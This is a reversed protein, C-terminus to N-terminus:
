VVCHPYAERKLHERLIKENEDGLRPIKSLYDSGRVFDYKAALDMKLQQLTMTECQPAIPFLGDWIKREVQGPRFEGLVRSKLFDVLLLRLSEEQHDSSIKHFVLTEAESTSGGKFALPEPAKPNSPMDELNMFDTVLDEAVSLCPAFRRIKPLLSLALWLLYGPTTTFALLRKSHAGPAPIGSQLNCIKRNTYWCISLLMEQHMDIGNKLFMSIMRIRSPLLRPELYNYLDLILVNAPSDLYSHSDISGELMELTLELGCLGKVNLSAGNNVLFQLSSEFDFVWDEVLRYGNDRWLVTQNVSTFLKCICLVLYGLYQPTLKSDLLRLYTPMLGFSFSCCLVTIFDPSSQSFRGPVTCEPYFPFFDEDRSRADMYVLGALSTLSRGLDNSFSYTRHYTGYGSVMNLFETINLCSRNRDHEAVFGWLKARAVDVHCFLAQREQCTSTDYALIKSGEQTTLLYELASRHIFRIELKHYRIQSAFKCERRPVCELDVEHCELLGACRTGLNMIVNDCKEVITAPDIDNGDVVSQLFRRDTALMMDAVTIVGRPYRAYPWPHTRVTDVLGFYTAATSIYDSLDADQGSRAWMDNFLDHLEKPTQKLRENLIAISDNNTLGRQLRRLVLCVWLFVGNSRECIIQVFQRHEWNNMNERGPLIKSKFFDMTYTRIDSETLTHIRLKHVKELRLQFIPEPRSSLCMKLQPISQLGLIFSWLDEHIESPILEDLGDIFICTPRKSSKLVVKIAKRLESDAWDGPNDKSLVLPLRQALFSLLVGKDKLDEELIQHLLSCYIGKTNRQLPYGSSLLFHSIIRTGPRWKELLAQTRSDRLLFLMLTSKGSGPKGSVWYVSDDSQLWSVFSNWPLSTDDQSTDSLIGDNFTDGNGNHSVSEPESTNSYAVSHDSACDSELDSFDDDESDHEAARDRFIWEFTRRHHPKVTNRRDNMGDYKLSGLVRRQTAEDRIALFGNEVRNEVSQILQSVHVHNKALANIFHQLTTNLSKFEERSQIVAAENTSCIRVLLGSELTSQYGQIEDQLRRLDGYKCLHRSIAIITKGISGKSAATAIKALETSLTTVAVLCKKALEGLEQTAKDSPLQSTSAQLSKDLSQILVQLTKANTELSPNASGRKYIHKCLTITEGTFSIVQMLNCAIGLAALTEM